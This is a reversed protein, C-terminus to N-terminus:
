SLLINDLLPVSMALKGNTSSRGRLIVTQSGGVYVQRLMPVPLASFIPLELIHFLLELIGSSLGLHSSIAEEFSSKMVVDLKCRWRNKKLSTRLSIGM